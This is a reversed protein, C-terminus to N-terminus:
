AQQGYHDHLGAIRAARSSGLRQEGILAYVIVGLVPLFTVFLIWALAVAAPPTRMIIRYGITMVIVVHVIVTVASLNMIFNM